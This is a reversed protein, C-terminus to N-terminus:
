YATVYYDDGDLLHDEAVFLGLRRGAEQNHGSNVPRVAYSRLMYEDVTFTGQYTTAFPFEDCDNTYGDDRKTFDEGFAKKKAPLM